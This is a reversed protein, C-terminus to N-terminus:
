VVDVIRLRIESRNRFYSKEITAILTTPVGVKPPSEFNEARTFFAIARLPGGRERTFELELHSEEKGFGRVKSPTVNRFMCLPKPNGVGFPAFKEIDNWLAPTVDNLSIDLDVVCSQSVDNVNPINAYAECLADELGHIKEFTVGFGGSMHHGGYHTFHNKAAEMLDAVSVNGPSRCSGKIGDGNDRGWAFVPKGFEEVLASAALGLLPPRWEPKGIVIVPTDNEKQREAVHKKMEKVMAAVIGKREDNIRHLHDVLAGAEGGDNTSLLKFADMPVGM